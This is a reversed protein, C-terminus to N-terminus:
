TIGDFWGNEIAQHWSAMTAQYLSKAGELGPWFLLTLLNGGSELESIEMAQIRRTEPDFMLHIQGHDDPNISLMQLRQKEITTLHEYHESGPADPWVHWSGDPCCRGPSGSPDPQDMDIKVAGSLVLAELVNDINEIAM